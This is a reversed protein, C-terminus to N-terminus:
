IAREAKPSPVRRNALRFQVLQSILAPITRAIIKLDLWLSKHKAYSIDMQIMESFTTQNKGSVQWLGTLGPLADFRHKQYETYKEYEYPLCPLPGVLSMEGRLINVLQPLEDFGTARLVAGFPILRPDGKLDMKTM